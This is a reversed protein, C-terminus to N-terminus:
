DGSAYWHAFVTQGNGDFQFVAIGSRGYWDIREGNEPLEPLHGIIMTYPPAKSRDPVGLIRKVDDRRMEKAAMDFQHKTVGSADPRYLTFVAVGVLVVCLAIRRSSWRRPSYAARM